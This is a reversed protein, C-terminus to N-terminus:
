GTFPITLQKSKKHRRNTSASCHQSCGGVRYITYNLAQQM